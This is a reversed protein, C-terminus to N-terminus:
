ARVPLISFCFTVDVRAGTPLPRIDTTLRGNDTTKSEGAARKGKATLRRGGVRLPRSVVSSQRKEVFFMECAERNDMFTSIAPITALGEAEVARILADYHAHAGSVIQPRMLLLGITKDADLKPRGAKVARQDYWARYAEFTEFLAPADPHYVAVAPMSEPPPLEVHDLREDAAYHKLAHLLMTRINAPTPQLFYCFLSLYNKADGLRGASPVIRLLAPLREIYRLYQTHSAGKRRERRSRAQEGM